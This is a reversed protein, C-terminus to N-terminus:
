DSIIKVKYSFIKLKDSFIKLKNSFIKGRAPPHSPTRRLQQLLPHQHPPEQRLQQLAHPHRQQVGGGQQEERQHDSQGPALVHVQISEEASIHAYRGFKDGNESNLIVLNNLVTM